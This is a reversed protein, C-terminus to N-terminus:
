NIEKKVLFWGNDTYDLYYNGNKIYSPITKPCTDILESLCRIDTAMIKNYLMEATEKVLNRTSIPKGDKIKKTFLVALTGYQNIGQTWESFIASACRQKLNEFSTKM